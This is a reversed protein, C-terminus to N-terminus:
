KAPQVMPKVTEAVKAAIIAAGKESPHVGDKSLWEPEDALFTALDIVPVKKGEAVRKAAARYGDLLKTLGGVKDFPPRKHRTFYAAEDIPPITMLVVKAGSKRCADAIAALNAEYKELPVYANPADIRTDNTGFLVVVVDPQKDIVDAQMRALGNSTSHGAVGANIVEAKDGFLKGLVGPYAGATISDGFCVVRTVRPKKPGITPPSWARGVRRAAAAAKAEATWELVQGDALLRERLKAYPVQQVPIKADIAMAAATGASQGLVMFVPEMRISGYAIHTSSLCVPVLLNTCEAPKPVIARYGVPYPGPIRVQVDGENKVTHKGDKGYVVFRQV